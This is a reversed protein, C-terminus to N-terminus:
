GNAIKHLQLLIQQKAEMFKLYKTSKTYAKIELIVGWPNISLLFVDIEEKSDIEPHTSIYDRIEKIITEAQFGAKTSLRVREDIRRHTMRSYNVLAETSFVSNPIYLLKKQMDRITTLYWGIEEVVGHVSKGPIAIQEDVALPRTIYIMVGGFFNSVVDRSAFGLIAAGIGSVTLLPVIDLGVVQLVIMLSVFFITISMLKDIVHATSGDLTHKGEM